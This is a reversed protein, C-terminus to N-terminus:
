GDALEAALAENHEGLRPPPPLEDAAVAGDFTLPAAVFGFEPYAGAARRRLLGLAEVQADAALDAFTQIPGANVGEAEFVEMWEAVSRTRTTAAITEIVYDHNEVRDSNSAMRPDTEWEPRGVAACLRKWQRAGHCSIMMHGDATPFAEAPVASLGSRAGMRRPTAGAAASAWTTAQLHVLAELLSTDVTGGRGTHERALLLSMTGLAAYIGCSTDALATGVRMPPGDAAGTISMIGAYAQLITDSGPRERLPGRNGYGSITTHVLRPHTACLEPGLGFREAVGPRYGVIVVDARGILDRVTALGAETKLDAALSEKGRNIALFLPSDGDLFPPGTTRSWDGDPPEVKVVRAGLEALVQGCFPGAIGEAMEVVLSDQLGTPV